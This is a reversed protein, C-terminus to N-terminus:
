TLRTSARHGAEIPLQRPPPFMNSTYGTVINLLTFIINASNGKQPSLLPVSYIVFEKKSSVFFPTKNTGNTGYLM